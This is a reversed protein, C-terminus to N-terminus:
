LIGAENKLKDVLDAVSTVKVGSKRRAPERTELIEVRPTTDVGFDAATKTDIPKKKAKM